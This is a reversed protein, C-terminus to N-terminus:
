VPDADGGWWPRRVMNFTMGPLGQNRRFRILSDLYANAACYYAVGRGGIQSALSSVVVFHDLPLDQTLEHLYWAGLCKAGVAEDFAEDDLDEVLKDVSVGQM